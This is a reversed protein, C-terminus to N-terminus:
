KKDSNNENTANNPADKYKGFFKDPYKKAFWFVLPLYVLEFIGLDRLIIPGSIIFIISMVFLFTLSAISKFKMEILYKPSKVRQLFIGYSLKKEITFRQLRNPYLIGGITIISGWLFLFLFGIYLFWSINNM